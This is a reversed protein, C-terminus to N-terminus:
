DTVYTAVFNVFTNSNSGTAYLRVNGGVINSSLTVIDTVDLLSNPNGVTLDGYTQIYSIDDDHILLAELVEYGDDNRASIIYKASRYSTKPFQDIITDTTNSVPKGAGASAMSSISTTGTIVLNTVDLEEAHIVNGYINGNNDRVVLTGGQAQVNAAIYGGSVDIWNYNIGDFIYQYIRDNAQDYWEDGLLPSSPMTASSVFTPVNRGNRLITNASSIINGGYINGQVGLGGTIQVAGTTTSISSTTNSFYTLQTFSVEGTHEVPGSTNLNGVQFDGSVNLLGNIFLNGAIGVGGNVLLAGTTYSTSDTIPTISVQNNSIQVINASGKASVNVNGSPNIVINSTGNVLGSSSVSKWSVVGAGDTQLYQGSSGGTITINGVEGLNSKSNVVLSNATVNAVNDIVTTFTESGVSFGDVSNFKKIAM